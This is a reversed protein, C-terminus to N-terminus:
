AARNKRARQARVAAAAAADFSAESGRRPPHLRADHARHPQGAPVQPRPQRHEVGYKPEKGESVGITRLRASGPANGDKEEKGLPERRYIIAGHEVRHMERPARVESLTDAWQFLTRERM